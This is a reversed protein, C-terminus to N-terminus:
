PVREAVVAAFARIRANEHDRHWVLGLATEPLGSVPVAVVDGRRHYTATPACLLMGGRNAAILWVGEQLTSVAPGGPIPRGGPTTTPAHARRWYEGAPEAASILPVDALDEASVETRRALPHRTSIVLRTAQRSFVPGLVLEDEEVPLLVVAADVAGRHVPGFPDSLPIEAIEVSSGPHRDQFSTVAALLHDDATGQFGIRLPGPITRAADRAEDVAARLAGYAPELAARFTQGLPTLRVSRSTRSVLRAGVRRELSGILQSVRSQSVLLREGTRGFHLEDALVLFCELERIELGAM